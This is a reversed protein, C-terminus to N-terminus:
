VYACKRHESNFIAFREFIKCISEFDNSNTKKKRSELARMVLHRMAGLPSIVSVVVSVM